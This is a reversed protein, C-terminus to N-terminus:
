EQAPPEDENAAPPLPLYAPSGALDPPPLSDQVHYAMDVMHQLMKEGTRNGQRANALLLRVITRYVMIVTNSDTGDMQTAHAVMPRSTAEMYMRLTNVADNVEEEHSDYDKTDGVASQFDHFRELMSDFGSLILAPPLAAQLVDFEEGQQLLTNAQAVVAKAEEPVEAMETLRIVDETVEAFYANHDPNVFATLAVPSLAYDVPSQLARQVYQEKDSM